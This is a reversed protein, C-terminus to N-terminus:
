LDRVREPDLFSRAGTARDLRIIKVNRGIRSDLVGQLVEESHTAIFVQGNRPTQEVLHRGILKAHRPHLFTEPEDVFTILPQAVATELLIGTFARIGDGEGELWPLQSYWDLAERSPPNVDLDVRAPGKFLATSSREHRNVCVPFGFAQQVLDSFAKELERSDWLHHIPAHPSQVPDRGPRVSLAIQGREAASLYGVMYEAIQPFQRSNGWANWAHLYELQKSTNPGIRHHIMYRPEADSSPQYRAREGFWAKFATEEGQWGFEVENVWRNDRARGPGDQVAEYLGKLFHTKGANNAGVVVVVDGAQLYEASGDCFHVTTIAVGIVPDPRLAM